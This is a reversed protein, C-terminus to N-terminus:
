SMVEQTGFDPLQGNIKMWEIWELSIVLEWLQLKEENKGWSHASVFFEGLKSETSFGSRM